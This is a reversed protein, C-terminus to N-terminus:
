ERALRWGNESKVLNLTQQRPLRDGAKFDGYLLSLSVLNMGAGLKDLAGGPAQQAQAAIDQLSKTFVLDYSVDASYHTADQQLGDLKKFNEISYIAQPTNAKLELAVLKELESSSPKGSCALLFLSLGLVTLIRKM